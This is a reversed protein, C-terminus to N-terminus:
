SAVGLVRAFQERKRRLHRVRRLTFQRERNNWYWRRTRALFKAAFMPDNHYRRTRNELDRKNQCIRCENKFQGTARNEYYFYKETLPLAASQHTRCIRRGHKELEKNRARLDKPTLWAGVFEDPMNAYLADVDVGDDFGNDVASM